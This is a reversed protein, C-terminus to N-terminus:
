NLKLGPLTLTRAPDEDWLRLTCSELLQEDSVELEVWASGAEGPELPAPQVVLFPELEQGSGTTVRAGVARWPKLPDVNLLVLQVVRRHPTRHLTLEAV